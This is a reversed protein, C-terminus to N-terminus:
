FAIRVALQFARPGGSGFVQGVRNKPQAFGRSLLNGSRGSLNAINLLNFAEGILALQMREGLSFNRSLRFDQTLLPDGFEFHAPLTVLPIPTGHSDTKGAYTQNFSNVLRRLDAKGLGRNFENVTTAPLLDGLTGDGNFDLGDLFVSFPPRSVYTTFIGLELRAPLQVLSSASLIQRYDTNLPGYNSLPNDNDFGAVFGNGQSSSYAYSGLLQWGRSFRKEARVLLGRYNGTGIGTTLYIPGLSCPAQPDNRQAVSCVPLVPGRASSFHNVDILEPYSGGIHTFHRYVVDTSFVFDRAVERQVGLSVNTSSANPLYTDVVSGQKDVEINTISFDPNNPNGRQATLDARIAPLAEMLFTGTFATPSFFQLLAGQPVGPVSTLPNLIGASDYFGRGVGRPGLSVREDDSIGFATQFDYYIGAGGRIVTKADRWPTWAFGGAPAFNRWNKHTTGLNTAGLVPALYSPKPLDYNLPTDFSWGLGFSITLTPHRHWTDQAFLHILQQIRTKGFGAQPVHPSGIGVTFDQLPLQLIDSLTLFSSPLTLRQDPPQLSNFEQVQEPSFLNMTVPQDATDTRGGRTTEWDGGFRISHTGKQWAAIDNLHYRRGLVATTTSTGIFLESDTVNIGPAGIGLCGPCDAETPAKEASSVFLYSFRLDNVWQSALQSTLGVISQDTWEPQRTWASPYALAAVGNVTTPAYSLGGEHSQRVFLWDTQNIKWDTRVSFQNVKSPSPTVRSLPSFEPTLLETSVVGRQDNREFTAFVFWRDKEFPGGVSVGYQQRQFFPEPNFPDRKLAPYASLFHNRFFYFASGHWHNGGSRTAVNIAGSATMGTSLDFNATAVQFEQVTEQSFGMATGGNGIQMISGGDVTVRTGRGNNGGAPTSLLPVFTRNNSGRGPQLGGPELKALELFDRGNLPLGEIQSDTTVASIDYADHRLQPTAGAVTITQSSPGIRLVADVTTTSGAEVIADRLLREFGQAEIAVEYVGGPLSPATYEGEATTELVRRQGDEHRSIGVHAHPISAGTADTIRGAIIGTPVQAEAPKGIIVRVALAAVIALRRSM